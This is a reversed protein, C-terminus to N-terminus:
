TLQLEGLLQKLEDPIAAELELWESTVPHSFGLRWAHLFYRHLGLTDARPSYVRDGVVPHGIASLHVRIQHTRGTAPHVEALTHAAYYQQVRYTTTAPRGDAVVAMRQRRAPDRGIPAEIRGERPELRGGVLALYVKRVRRHRFELQLAQRSAETKAM